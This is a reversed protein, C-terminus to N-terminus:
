RGLQWGPLESGTRTTSRISRKRDGVYTQERVDELSPSKRGENVQECNRSLACALVTHIECFEEWSLYM